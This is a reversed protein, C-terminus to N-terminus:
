VYEIIFVVEDGAPSTGIQDIDCTLVDGAAFDVVDPVSSTDKTQGTTITPRNGQTTFITTGNKNVDGILSQTGPATHCAMVVNKIKLARPAVWPTIGTGVVATGPITCTIYFPAKGGRVTLSNLFDKPM